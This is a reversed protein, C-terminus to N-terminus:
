RQGKPSKSEIEQRLAFVEEDLTVFKYESVRGSARVVSLGTQMSELRVLMKSIDMASLERDSTGSHFEFDQRMMWVMRRATEVVADYDDALYAAAMRMGYFDIDQRLAIVEDIIALAAIAHDSSEGTNAATIRWDARLKAANLYWQDHPLAQALLADKSRARGLNRRQALQMSEIVAMAVNSLNDAYPRIREPLTGDLISDARNKLLLYSAVPNGPELTLAALLSQDARAGQRQMQLIKAELLLSDPNGSASLTELLKRSLLHAQILELRDFIYVLDVAHKIEQHLDSRSDFLSGYQGILEQLRLYPLANGAFAEVSRTAIRNDDDTILPAGVALKKLGTEDWALAAVLDNVSGIGKRKFEEAHSGFPEGTALVQTEPDIESESALFFLVNADFQYARVHPFVDLLTAVFSKLIPESVFQTNMWQLFVGSPQLRTSVLRMFERTYLHSAGATWPHSPQSVIADYRKSTLRLANRADNVIVNIRPDELPDTKRDASISHNAALVKPELEVIDIDVLSAPLDEAAVGGGFGVILMSKADPRALVPLAALLRQTHKAPPAGKLDTAAESLGNTRLYFYGDRELMLVTASRGVDYYRINGSRLDNIPSVRLLAEPATPSFGFLLVVFVAASAIAALNRRPPIAVAGVFALTVNIVVVVKIAGEYKLTPILVFGAFVAGAIAGVTNWAYVRASAISAESEDTCLIRVAFPFTAGIFLTAPLLILIAVSVNGLLGATQPVFQDLGLYIAVCLVAIGLESVIFGVQANARTTAIRSAVASGIAIGGLFSALMTAFAVVSGGLIHSLLRTWLVEYAFTAFGSVLILPLIWTEARWGFSSNESSSPSSGIVARKVLLVAIAFVLLNVAVAALITGWLGLAPLLLFAAVLTGAIAGATNISYLLGVRPGVETDKQVAYRTVMPLTAGMCATPVALVVFTVILYFFSQGAGSADPPQPSGGFLAAYLVGALQLLFPVSLASIAITVELIGYVLIPRRIRHMVRAAIAAGLALGAMYAALITAVALESTGFVVSLQRMWATQYLLAAFGSLFFCLSVAIFVTSGSRDGNKM